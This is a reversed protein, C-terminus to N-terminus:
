QRGYRRGVSPFRAARCVCVRTLVSLCVSRRMPPPLVHASQWLLSPLIVAFLTGQSPTLLQTETEMESTGGGGTDERTASEDMIIVNSKPRQMPKNGTAFFETMGRNGTIDGVVHELSAKNRTDSANFELVEFGLSRAIVSAATSKGSSM